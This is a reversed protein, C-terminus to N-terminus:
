ARASGSGAARSAAAQTSFAGVCEAVTMSEFSRVFDSRSALLRGYCAESICLVLDGRSRTMAVYAIRREERDKEQASWWVSSPCHNTKVVAPCVLVTLDHTEGKVAHVTQLPLGAVTHSESTPPQLFLASQKQSGQRNQPRLKGTEFNLEPPIGFQLLETEMIDGVGTQWLFFTGETPQANSKLLCRVALQKWALPDLGASNLEEDTVGEHQFVARELAARTYALASANKKRRFALVARYIHTIPPCHLNPGLDTRRGVLDDVTSTARAIIKATDPPYKDRLAMILNTVDQTMNKYRVLLARGTRNHAPRITGSSDKLHCAASAVPAPCRLSSQLTLRIAGTITEFTDFLDPKAGNFEFIAQDPDGVLLGRSCPEELLIKISKGLFHGTDQLEDVIVFPFRRIIESCVARGYKPHGLIKSSLLAVDSHTLFGHKRWVEKKAEKVKDRDVDNLVSLPHIPSPRHAIIAAGDRDEGIFVCAFLKIEKGRGESSPVTASQNRACSKWYDPGSEGPIIRPSAQNSFVRQFFPRVVYRFLFADITGVFHPHEIERGLAKRIEEGGVRTFSLAAIGSTIPTWSHLTQRIEEAILWTKGSGPAARVVRVRADKRELVARQDETPIRM